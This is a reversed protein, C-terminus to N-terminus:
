KVRSNIVGFSIYLLLVLSLLLQIATLIQNNYRGMVLNYGTLFSIYLLAVVSFIALRRNSSAWDVIDETM